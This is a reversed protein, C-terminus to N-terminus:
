HNVVLSTRGVLTFDPLPLYAGLITEFDYEVEVLVLNGRDNTGDGLGPAAACAVATTDFRCWKRTVTFDTPGSDLIGIAFEKVAAEVRTGTPDCTNPVGNPMPGSPCNDSALAGHVIAYRAGERAANDLVQLYYVARGFEITALLLLIFIPGVLAFETLSQGRQRRRHGLNM